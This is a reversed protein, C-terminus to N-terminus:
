NEVGILKRFLDALEIRNKRIETSVRREQEFWLQRGNELSLNSQSKAISMDIIVKECLRLNNEIAECFDTSFYIRNYEVIKTCDELKKFAYDTRGDNENSWEPGQWLSTLESLVKELETLEIYLSKLLEAREHHLKSYKIQHEIKLIDLKNEFTKVAVDFGKDIIKRGLFILISSLAMSGITFSLINDM